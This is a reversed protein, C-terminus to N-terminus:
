ACNYNELASDLNYTWCIPYSSEDFYNYNQQSIFDRTNSHEFNVEGSSVTNDNNYKSSWVGFWFGHNARIDPSM